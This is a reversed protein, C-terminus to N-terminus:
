TTLCKIIEERKAALWPTPSLARETGISGDAPDHQGGVGIHDCYSTRSIAMRYGLAGPVWWDWAIKDPMNNALKGCHEMTLLYFVGPAFRQWIVDERPDDRFINNQYAAHTETRYLCVPAGHYKAQLALSVERWSPDCIIDSDVLALHTCGHIERNGFFELIHKRRQADIGASECQVIGDAASVLETPLPERSGDDYIVLVDEGHKMGARITPVCLSALRLRGYTPVAICIKADQSM